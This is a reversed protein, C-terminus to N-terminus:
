ISDDLLAPERSEVLDGDMANLLNQIKVLAPGLPLGIARDGM